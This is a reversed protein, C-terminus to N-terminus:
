VEIVEIAELIRIDYEYGERKEWHYKTARYGISFEKVAGNKLLIAADNGATTPLIDAEIWMGYDDVGKDTIKGIVTARDHQWCLAMRDANPGALFEDCAGPMIIDGWSDINGFALAYAKIHLIGGEGDAKIEVRAATSKNQIEGGQPAQKFELRKM